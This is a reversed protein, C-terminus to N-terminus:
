LVHPWLQHGTVSKACNSGVSVYAFVFVRQPLHFHRASVPPPAHSATLTIPDTDSWSRSALCVDGALQIKKSPVTREM